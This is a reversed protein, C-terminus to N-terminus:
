GQRTVAPLVRNMLLDVCAQISTDETKLTIEPSDPQEYPDTLGTFNRIEGAAAKAYLGKVDRRQCEELSCDVFVEMFREKGIIKRALERDKRYPSIFACITIVGADVLLRSAEAARRINETRGAPDFGLDRSLGTRMHDGDLLFAHFGAAFLGSELGVALTSKGSGSLGTFWVVLPKQGLHQGREEAGIRGQVPYVDKM